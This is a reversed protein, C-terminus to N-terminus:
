IKGMVVRRACLVAERSVAKTITQATTNEVKARASNRSAHRWSQQAMGAAASCSAAGCSAQQASPCAAESVVTAAQVAVLWRVGV